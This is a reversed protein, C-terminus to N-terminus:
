FLVITNKSFKYTRTGVVFLLIHIIISINETLIHFLLFGQVAWIAPLIILSILAAIIVGYVRETKEM